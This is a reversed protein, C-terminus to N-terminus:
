ALELVVAFSLIDGIAVTFSPVGGIYDSANHALFKLTNTATLTATGSYLAVSIDNFIFSGVAQNGAATTTTLAAPLTVTVVGASGANTFVVYALVHALKGFQVTRVKTATFTLSGGQAITITPTTYAPFNANTLVNSFKSNGKRHRVRGNYTIDIDYTADALATFEWMGSASTTTSAVIAGAQPHTDSAVRANVTAGVVPTNSGAFTEFDKLAVTM